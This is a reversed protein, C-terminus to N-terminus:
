QSIVKKCFGEALFILKRQIAANSCRLVCVGKYSKYTASGKTRADFSVSTFNKLPIGLEKSWYRKVSTVKQDARLHLECRIKSNELNYTLWLAKIFFKLIMPNSSGLITEPTTKAGEGLYLMALALDLVHKQSINIKGLTELAQRKAEAIRAQKQANHWLVAKKRAKGLAQEWNKLLKAKQRSTLLVDKFWYSLTSKSIKLKAEVDRLSAGQKRLKIASDKLNYWQSKM